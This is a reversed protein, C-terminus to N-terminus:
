SIDQANENNVVSAANLLMRFLFLICILRLKVYKYQIEAHFTFHQKNIQNARVRYM